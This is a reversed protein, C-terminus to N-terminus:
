GGFGGICSLKEWVNLDIPRVTNLSVYDGGFERISVLYSSDNMVGVVVGPFTSRSCLVFQGIHM